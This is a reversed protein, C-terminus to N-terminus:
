NGHRTQEYHERLVDEGFDNEFDRWVTHVHNANNQTNDYEMLFTPGQIRYYHKEGREIGGAWGFYIKEVGSKEIKALDAEAIELRNRFLYEKILKMLLERQGTTMKEQPLGVLELANVKRANGTIVEKPADSSFIAIKRQQDSFSKVLQRGLDEENGLVRLGKHAGERVEGPNSGFFSPTASIDKGNAITFNISLHHGEVRWGWANTAGPKGFISVYYMEPDRKTNKNEMDFLVLELSMITTAKVYGRQSLGSDLLAHALNRQPKTMEKFPLGARAKPIFFWNEREDSKLEFVAKAKQEPKLSTLFDNAAEAMEEAAPNAFLPLTHLCCAVLASCLLKGLQM